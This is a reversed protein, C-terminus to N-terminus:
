AAESEDVLFKVHGDLFAIRRKDKPKASAEDVPKNAGNGITGALLVTAAADDIDELSIAGIHRNMGLVIEDNEPYRILKTSGYRTYPHLNDTWANAPPLREDNDTAYM